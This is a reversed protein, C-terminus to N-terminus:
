FRRRRIRGITTRGETPGTRSAMFVKMLALDHEVMDSMARSANGETVDVLSASKAAKFRWADVAAREPDQNCGDLLAQLIADSFEPDSVGDIPVPDDIFLRLQDMPPLAM